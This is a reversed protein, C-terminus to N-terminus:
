DQKPHAKFFDVVIRGHKFPAEEVCGYLGRPDLSGPFCHGGLPPSTFSHDLHEFVLGDDNKYRTWVFGEGEQVVEDVTLAHAEVLSDVTAQAQEASVFVDDQGIIYFTDLARTDGECATGRMGVPAVSALTDALACHMRFTMAGGQSFGTFHVRREDVHWVKMASELFDIVVPDHSPGSWSGGPASPQVVIYGEERGIAAIGTNQEEIPGSMTFGHVDFILGCAHTMCTEPVSVNFVINEGCDAFILQEGPGVDDICGQPAPAEAIPQTGAPPVASMSEDAPSGAEAGAADGKDMGADDEQKPARSADQKGGGSTGADMRGQGGANGADRMATPAEDADDDDDDDDGPAAAEDQSMDRDDDDSPASGSEEGCASVSLLASITSLTLWRGFETTAM